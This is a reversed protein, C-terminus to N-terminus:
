RLVDPDGGTQVDQGVAAAGRPYTYTYAPTHEHVRTHTHTRPYTNTYMWSDYQTETSCAHIMSHKEAADSM